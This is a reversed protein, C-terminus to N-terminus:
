NISPAFRPKVLPPKTQGLSFHVRYGERLRSMKTDEHSGFIDWAASGVTAILIADGFNTIAFSMDHRWYSFSECHSTKKSYKTQAMTTLNLVYM